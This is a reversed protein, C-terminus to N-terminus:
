KCKRLKRMVWEKDEVKERYSYVIYNMGNRPALERKLKDNARQRSYQGRRRHYPNDAKYHQIGHYDVLLNLKPIYIDFRLLGGRASIGWDPFGVETVIRRPDGGEERIGDQISHLLAAQNKWKTGAERLRLYRGRPYWSYDRGCRTCLVMGSDLGLNRGVGEKRCMICKSM